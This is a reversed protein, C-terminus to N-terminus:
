NLRLHETKSPVVPFKSVVILLNPYHVLQTCALPILVIPMILQVDQLVKGSFNEFIKAPFKFKKTM